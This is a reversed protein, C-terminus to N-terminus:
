RISFGIRIRKDWVYEKVAKVRARKPGEYCLEKFNEVKEPDTGGVVVVVNGNKLNRAYGHLGERIATNEAWIRYGVKQVKGSIVYRKAHITGLPADTVELQQIENSRLQQLIRRYNFYLKDSTKLAMTEPFYYDIISKAINRHLGHNPFVHLASGATTNIEIVVAADEEVIMDVGAHHLGPIARVANVAVEKLYPSLKDTVDVSDGGASMNSEGKLYVLQGEEPISALSLGQGALFQELRDDVKILRTSTHPNLRRVENKADILAEITDNGNGKVNAPIRTTAAVVKDDVVYVRLDEGSVHQEVLFDTYDFASQVYSLSKKFTEENEIQTVVGKGLSGFVPKIVFPGRRKFATGAVEDVPTDTTFAFGEPVPVGANKLYQKTLMKDNGIGVAENSVKDGRTRYFFHTKDQSSLSFLKGIPDFGIIELDTRHTEHSYFSLTLGRRWGELALLYADINFRRIGTLMEKELWNPYIETM